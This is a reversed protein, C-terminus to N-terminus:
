TPTCGSVASILGSIAVILGSLAIITANSPRHRQWWTTPQEEDPV